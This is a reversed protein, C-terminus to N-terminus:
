SAQRTPTGGRSLRAVLRTRAEPPKRESPQFVHAHLFHGTLKLGDAIDSPSITVDKNRLFEPLRLLRDAFAGAGAQSVARGTRPSVYLLDATAGTVACQELDLGFGLEALLDVEWAVYHARWDAANTTIRDLVDVLQRYLGPMPLREPLAADCLACASSLAALADPDTMCRAARAATVECTLTGLHEALRARWRAVVQNGPQHDGRRRPGAAGRGLGAHRGHSSSLLGILLSSEGHPRASLIIADDQWEM